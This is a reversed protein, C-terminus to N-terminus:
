AIPDLRGPRKTNRAKARGAYKGSKVKSVRGCSIVCSFCGKKRVLQTAALSEGGVKDATPFYADHFNKTPLSGIENLINVLVNTGYNPLGAGGM